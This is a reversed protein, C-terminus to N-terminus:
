GLPVAASSIRRCTDTPKRGCRIIAMETLYQRLCMIYDFDGISLTANVNTADTSLRTYRETLRQLEYREYQRAFYREPM